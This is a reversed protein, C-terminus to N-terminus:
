PHSRSDKRSRKSKRVGEVPPSAGGESTSVKVWSGLDPVVSRLMTARDIRKLSGLSESDPFIEQRFFNEEDPEGAGTEELNELDHRWPEDL